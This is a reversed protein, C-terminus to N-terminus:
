TIMVNQFSGSDSAIQEETRHDTHEMLIGEAPEEDEDFDHCRSHLKKTVPDCCRFASNFKEMTSYIYIGSILIIHNSAVALTLSSEM